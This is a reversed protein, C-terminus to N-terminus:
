AASPTGFAVASILPRRRASGLTARPARRQAHHARRHTSRDRTRRVPRRGAWRPTKTRPNTWWQERFRDLRGREATPRARFRVISPSSPALTIARRWWTRADADNVTPFSAESGTVAFLFPGRELAAVQLDGVARVTATRPVDRLWAIEGFGQGPGLMAVERGARLVQASGSVTRDGPPSSAPRPTASSRACVRSPMRGTPRPTTTRRRSCSRCAAPGPDRAALAAALGAVGMAVFVWGLSAVMLMLGALAPGIFDAMGEAATFATTGATLENPTRAIEPVLAHHVPRTLTM